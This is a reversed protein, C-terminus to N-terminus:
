PVLRGMGGSTGGPFTESFWVANDPGTLIGIPSAGGSIGCFYETFKHTRLDFRGVRDNLFESFFLSRGDPGLSLFVLSPGDQRVLGPVKFERVRATVLDVQGLQNADQEVVYMLNDPGLLLDHPGVNRGLQIFRDFTLTTRNFHALQDLAELGAWLEGNADLQLGHIRNGIRKQLPLAETFETVQMTARDFRALRGPGKRTKNGGGPEPVREEFQESFYLFGDPAELIFHPTAGPTMGTVEPGFLNIQKTVPDLVGIRDGLCTFWLLQDSGEMIFHPFITPPPAFADDGLRPLDLREFNRTIPDFRLIADEFQATTYFNQDQADLVIGGTHLGVQFEEACKTSATLPPPVQNVIRGVALPDQFIANVPSLLLVFFVHNPRRSTDRRIQVFIQQVTQFPAFTLVGQTPIYDKGPVACLWPACDAAAGGTTTFGVQVTRATAESLTVTFVMPIMLAQRPAPIQQDFIALRPPTGQARVIHTPAVVIAVLLAAGLATAAILLQRPRQRRASTRTTTSM